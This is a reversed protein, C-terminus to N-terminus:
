SAQFDSLSFDSSPDTETNSVNIYAKAAYQKYNDYNDRDNGLIIKLREQANTTHCVTYDYVLSFLLGM